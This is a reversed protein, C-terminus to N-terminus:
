GRFRPSVGLVRTQSRGVGTSVPHLGVYAQARRLINEIQSVASTLSGGHESQSVPNVILYRNAATIFKRARSVDGVEEFDAYVMVAEFAAEPSTALDNSESM